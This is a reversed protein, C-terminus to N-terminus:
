FLHPPYVFNKPPKSSFRLAEIALIVGSLRLRDLGYVVDTFRVGGCDDWIDLAIGILVQEDGSFARASRKLTQPLTRLRSRSSDLLFDLFKPDNALVLFIAQLRQDHSESYYVDLMKVTEM